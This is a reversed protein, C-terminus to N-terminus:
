QYHMEGTYIQANLTISQQFRTKFDIGIHNIIQDLLSVRFKLNVNKGETLYRIQCNIALDPFADYPACTFTFGHPPKSGNAKIEIADLSSHSANFNGVTSESNQTSNITLKRIAAIAQRFDIPVMEDNVFQISGAFDEAFDIFDLQSLVTNNLETLKKFEPLKKLKLEARHKGWEPNNATGMDIIAAAIETDPNIFICTKDTGNTNIYGAFEDILTTKFTGRFQSPTPEYQELDILKYDNPVIIMPKDVIDKLANNETEVVAMDRITKIASQDM